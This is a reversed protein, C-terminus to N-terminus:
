ARQHRERGGRGDADREALHQVPVPGGSRHHFELLVPQEDTHRLSNQAGSVTATYTTSAALPSGAHVHGGHRRQQLGGDRGGRERGLGEAHVVGHGATVAESFTAAPAVSVAMGTAGDGPAVTTVAPPTSGASQSFVVDVWYNASNYTNSPFANGSGYAYVGGGALATLPGNTVASALGGATIAYHGADTHYSAVYTTGATVPVPSSFDLEQWGSATEGSFTGTALLTGAPTWLSAPIRAPTTRSRTSGCGPSTGAAARRSSCAWTWAGPEHTWWAPRRAANPWISVPM